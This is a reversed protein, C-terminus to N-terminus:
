HSPKVSEFLEQYSKEFKAIGFNLRAYTINNTFIQERMSTDQIINELYSLSEAVIVEESTISSVLFGNVGRQIHIPMDGVPTGLIICGRAMAEMVVM